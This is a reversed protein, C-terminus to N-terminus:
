IVETEVLEETKLEQHQQHLIDEQQDLEEAVQVVMDQHFTVQMDALIEKHHHYQLHTVQQVVQQLMLALAMDTVEVQVM